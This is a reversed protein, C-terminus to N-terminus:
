GMALSTDGPSPQKSNPTWQHNLVDASIPRPPSPAESWLEMLGVSQGVSFALVSGGGTTQWSKLIRLKCRYLMIKWIATWLGYKTYTIFDICQLYCKLFHFLISFWFVDSLYPGTNNISVKHPYEIGTGNEVISWPFLIQFVQSHINGPGPPLSM